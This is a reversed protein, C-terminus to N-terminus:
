LPRWNRTTLTLVYRYRPSELVITEPPRSASPADAERGEGYHIRALEEDGEYYTRARLRGDEWREIVLEGTAADRGSRTGAQNAAVRNGIPWRWVRHVDRLIYEPPFPLEIPAYREFFVETGRQSLVFGRAGAPGLGVMTMTDGRRELVARFAREGEPHRVAVRQELFFDGAYDRPSPLEVPPFEPGGTEPPPPSGCAALVLALAAFRCM